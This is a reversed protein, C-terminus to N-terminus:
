RRESARWNIAVSVWGVPRWKQEGISRWVLAALHHGSGAQWNIAMSAWCMSRWEWGTLQTGNLVRRNIVM